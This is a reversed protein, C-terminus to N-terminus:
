CKHYEFEFIVLWFHKSLNLLRANTVAANFYLPSGQITFRYIYLVQYKWGVEHSLRGLVCFQMLFIIYFVAFVSPQVSMTNCYLCVRRGPKLRLVRLACPVVMRKKKDYPPPIGEFVKLRNLAESGRKTKHPLMGRVTRWLIRSPARLHFPGRSPKM